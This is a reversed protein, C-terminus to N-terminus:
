APESKVTKSSRKPKGPEHGQGTLETIKNTLLYFEAPYNTCLKVAADHPIEPEVSGLVLMELRKAIEDPVADGCGIMERLAKIQEQQSESLLGEAIAARNRNRSVAEHVRALEPGTLGRVTWVPKDDGFFPKLDAVKVALTRPTFSAGQFKGLDFPM